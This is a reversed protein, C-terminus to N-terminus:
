REFYTYGRLSEEFLRIMHQRQQVNIRGQKVAKEAKKRFTQFLNQPDYEVYTLVDSISDGEFEHV